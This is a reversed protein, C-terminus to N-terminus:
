QKKAQLFLFMPFEKRARNEASARPGPESQKHSTWEELRTVAFGAKGLAKFYFQLPHHFSVTKESGQKGPHMVIDTKSESLYEDLRRYQVANKEDFGWSSHQPIRFAPHNLVLFLEGGKMLVRSAESLVEQPNQMNQLALVTVVKHVTTNPLTTKHAPASVFRIDKPSHEQAFRILEPAIDVGVISAGAKHFERSFFGQGCALDLISDGAKPAVLRLLNPLILERQYTDSGGELLSDYWSAVSGWSTEPSKGAPKKKPSISPSM